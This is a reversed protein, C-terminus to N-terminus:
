SLKVNNMLFGELRNVQRGNKFVSVYVRRYGASTKLVVGSRWSWHTGLMTTQGFVTKQKVPAAKLGLQMESLVNMAIWRSAMKKQVYDTDFVTDRTVKMVALLAVALIVLAVLVEILTFGQTKYLHNANKM